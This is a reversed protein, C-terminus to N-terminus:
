ETRIKRTEAITYTNIKGTTRKLIGIQLSLHFLPLLQVVSCKLTQFFILFGAFLSLYCDAYKTGMTDVDVKLLWEDEQDYTNIRGGEGWSSMGKVKNKCLKRWLNLNNGELNNFFFFFIKRKGKTKILPSKRNHSRVGLVFRNRSIHFRKANIGGLM